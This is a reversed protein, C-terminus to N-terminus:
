AKELTANVVEPQLKWAGGAVLDVAVGIILWFINGLITATGNFSRTIQVQKKKYGDKEFTVIYDNGRALSITEPTTVEFGNSLRAVAGPPNSNFTVNQSTGYIITGCGANLFAVCLICCILKKM